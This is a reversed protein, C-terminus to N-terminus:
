TLSNLCQQLEEELPANVTIVKEQNPLRFKLREAHLFMRKLGLSRMEKNFDRDGYKDDGALYHEIHQLHVRIQHTRGTHLIAKLLCGQPYQKELIFETLSEKGERDVRVLREGSSLTNKRLAVNVKRKKGQWQGQALCLYEKDIQRLRVQEHLARLASCKKAILLCGSTAKDLRHVLELYRCDSKALRLANIVGFSSNTGGHVPMGEPKNLAIVDDDEYLIRDLLIQQINSGIDVTVENKILLPPIRIIDGTQIKYDPKTRKKNVRVEGKRIARYFRTKPVGKITSVLYNDIRQGEREETIEVLQVKTQTSM